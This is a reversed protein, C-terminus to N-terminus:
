VHARGIEMTRFKLGQFDDVSEIPRGGYLPYRFTPLFHVGVVLGVEKAADTLKSMAPDNYAALMHEASQFTFPLNFVNYSPVFVAFPGLAPITAEITGIQMAELVEREWGLVGSHHIDIKFRGDTKQEVYEKFAEAAVQYTSKPDTTHSLKWTVKPLESEGDAEVQGESFLPFVLFLAVLLGLLLTKKM